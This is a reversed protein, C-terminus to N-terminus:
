AKRVVVVHGAGGADQGIGFVQGQNVAQKETHRANGTQVVAAFPARQSLLGAATVIVQPRRKFLRLPVVQRVLNRGHRFGVPLAVGKAAAIEM